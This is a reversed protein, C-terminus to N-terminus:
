SEPIDTEKEEIELDIDWDSDSDQQVMPPDVDVKKFHSSNRKITKGPQTAEIQLGNIKEKQKAKEVNERIKNSTKM